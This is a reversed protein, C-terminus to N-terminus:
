YEFHITSGDIWCMWRNLKSHYSRKKEENMQENFPSAVNPKLNFRIEGVFFLSVSESRSAYINIKYQNLSTYRSYRRIEMQLFINANSLKLLLKQKPPSSLFFLGFFHFTQMFIAVTCANTMEKMFIFCRWEIKVCHRRAKGQRVVTRRGFFVMERIGFKFRVFQSYSDSMRTENMWKKKKTKIFVTQYSSHLIDHYNCAFLLSINVFCIFRM